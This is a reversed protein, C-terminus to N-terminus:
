EELTHFLIGHNTAVWLGGDPGTALADVWYCLQVEDDRYHRKADPRVVVTRVSLHGEEDHDTPATIVLIKTMCHTYHISREGTTITEIGAASIWTDHDPNIAQGMFIADSLHYESQGEPTHYRITEGDTEWLNHGFDGIAAARYTTEDYATWDQGDFRLMEEKTGCWVAGNPAVGVISVYGKPFDAPSEFGPPTHLVASEGDLHWIGDYSGIWATSDPAVHLSGSLFVEPSMADAYSTWTDGDFRLVGDPGTQLWVTGDPSFELSGYNLDSPLGDAETYATWTEGDFHVVGWQQCTIWVTGDPAIDISLMLGRLHIDDRTSYATVSGDSPDLRFVMGSSEGSWDNSIAWLTGEADFAIDYISRDELYAQWGAALEPLAQTSQPTMTPPYPTPPATVSASTALAGDARTPETTSSSYGLPMCSLTLAFLISTIFILGYKM